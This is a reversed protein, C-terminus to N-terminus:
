LEKDKFNKLLIYLISVFRESTLVDMVRSFTVKNNQRDSIHWAHCEKVIQYAEKSVVVYKKGVFRSIYANHIEKAIMNIYFEYNLFQTKHEPYIEFLTNTLSANSRLQLYRLNLNPENARVQSYLQYKTNLIKFQNGQSDFVILGQSLFPDVESVYKFVSDWNFFELERQSPFKSTTIDVESTYAGNEGLGINGVYYFNPSQTDEPSKCVIRNERTNRILFFYVKEKNLQSTFNEIVNDQIGLFTSISNKFVDGFSLSSGWRSKFADLKRNTSIYWKDHYFVRILTGEESKYFKYNEIPLGSLTTMDSENYEPTFGLSKFLQNEGNFVLGRSKKLLEESQNNCYKYSYIQLVGDDDTKEMFNSISNISSPFSTSNNLIESAM